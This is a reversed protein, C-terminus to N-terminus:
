PDRGLRRRMMEVDVPHPGLLTVSHGARALCEAIAADVQEGGGYTSWYLDYVAVKM